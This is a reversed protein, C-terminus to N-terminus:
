LDGAIRVLEVAIAEIRVLSEGEEISLNAKSAMRECIQQLEEGLGHITRRQVQEGILRGAKLARVARDVGQQGAHGVRNAWQGVDIETDFRIGRINGTQRIVTGAVVLSARHLKVTAGTAPLGVGDVMAGRESINRVRVVFSGAEARLDATLFVNSRADERHEEETREVIPSSWNPYTRVLQLLKM